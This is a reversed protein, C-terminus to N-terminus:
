EPRHQVGSKEKQERAGDEPERLQDRPAEAGHSEGSDERVDDGREDGDAQEDNVDVHSGGDDAAAEGGDDAAFYRRVPGAGMVAEPVVPDGVSSAATSSTAGACRVRGRARA